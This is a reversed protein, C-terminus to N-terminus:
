AFAKRLHPLIERGTVRLGQVYDDYIFMLGDIDCDRLFQEIKTACTAPAGVATQTMFAGQARATMANGLAGYSQLMGAVAGEDLGDRYAQAKAEAEGDTDATIVTMMCYTRISKGLEAALKKARVSAERTEAVDRGGIFCGDAERVSFDFGRKSMGACILFPPKLPKPESVCDKFSFYKGDFSVKPERWLQKVITTWEETLDYRADHSLSADWADMQEFEGRYAGAVINLGARGGSIHDLTAIMKAAVAPNHLIAHLTTWVKVRKTVAAIGAMMTVAELSSGWHSTDGGFGRWKGMAMVFDFGEEEAIRAADRNQEWGGDLPPTARSVIWGGNAVPLFVGYEKPETM